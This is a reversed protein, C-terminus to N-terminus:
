NLFTWKKIYNLMVGYVFNPTIDNYNKPVLLTHRGEPIIYIDKKFINETMEYSTINDMDGHFILFNTNINRIKDQNEIIWLHLYYIERASSLMYPTKISYESKEKAEMFEIIDSNNNKTDNVIPMYLKPFLYSIYILINSLIPHPLKSSHIGCMPAIFINGIINTNNIFKNSNSLYKLVIACGLSKACIIIKKNYKNNIHSIVNSLDIIMDNYSNILFREGDSKGHGHFEFAITKYNFNSFFDYKNKIEDLSDYIFQFHGGIGHVYLIIIDPNIIDDDIINIKGNKSM